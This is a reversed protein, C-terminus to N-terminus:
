RAAAKGPRQKRRSTLIMDSLIRQRLRYSDAQAAHAIWALLSERIQPLTVKGAYWGAKLRRLRQRIARVNDARLRRHTPFIRLGLFPIGTHVPYVTSRRWNLALRLEALHDQIAAKWAHLQAKDHHFLLFDDCYRLYAKAKLERKVFQDLADLYVNAWFQSTLNGVPLGRPRLAALLDDGDFWEMEYIPTLIGEGSALIQDILWLTQDDAIHHALRARLIAHDIAPFFQHVDCQLVYPYHRAHRQALDIARHTGKDVRCAYSDHIFRAEWIPELVRVLAHHVVRDRFPAASILRRKREQVYFNRYPGPKYRQTQLDAQLQFLNEELDLEFAAVEPRSRKGRRAKRFAAYLNAFDTIQEYLHRYTKM